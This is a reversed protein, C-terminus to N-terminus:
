AQRAAARDAAPPPERRSEVPTPRYRNTIPLRRDRGFARVSVRVGPPAQRRKYEARDVLEIVREVTEAPLGAAILEAADEDREVYGELIRDLLEYPPLSDEDRQGPRLEASPPREIVSEPIPPREGRAVALENRWRALRYVTTKFVDKLVSFGGAMDGYLTAYGVSLESKNGTTLVLWGFKNSLAMLLTGRIRAQVNEETVDPPRGEFAPRLMASFADMAPTIPIERLRAGIRQALEHADRRTGESSYPSPMTLLEVRECGLADAAIVATLASDIGGSLGILVKAFRNKEVYDRLGLALARYIEEDTGLLEACRGTPGKAAPESRDRAGSSSGSSSGSRDSDSDSGSSGSRSRSRQPAATVREVSVQRAVDMLPAAASRHRPDRLRQARVAAPDVDVLLLEEHFQAARAVVGGRHDCVLSHGDFVLEDQGGVLNCFVVYAVMDAARQRLMRERDHGKGRHYPSASLNVVLEAGALVQDVHPGDPIWIDECVTIGLTAAPLEVILPRTGPRFYRREDFVGYNPLHIKRHAAIVRGGAIVAATNYVDDALLPAGVLATLTQPLECALRELEAAARELFHTKLLLDEPPYGTLALEPYVVLEAGAGAADRALAVIRERNGTLDGVVADFQALALRVRRNDLGTARAAPRVM